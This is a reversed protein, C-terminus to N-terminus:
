QTKPKKFTQLIDFLQQSKADLLSARSLQPKMHKLQKLRRVTMPERIWQQRWQLMNGSITQLSKASRKFVTGTMEDIKRKNFLSPIPHLKINIEMSKGWDQWKFINIHDYAKVGIWPVRFVDAVIAGHMAETILVESQQIQEIIANLPQAPSIFHMGAEEVREEWLEYMGESVHHPMYSFSFAKPVTPIALYKLLLAGDAVALKEDIGLVKATLPGRVCLVEYRNDLVPPKGYTYEDGLAYGSSYVILKETQETGKAQGLITGIGLFQLRPDDDFFDPLLQNFILPNLLDGFNKTEKYYVLQM